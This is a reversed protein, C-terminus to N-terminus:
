CTGYRGTCISVIVTTMPLEVPRFPDSPGSRQAPRLSSYGRWHPSSGLPGVSVPHVLLRVLDLIGQLCFDSHPPLFKNSYGLSPGSWPFCKYLRAHRGPSSSEPWRRSSDLPLLHSPSSCLSFTSLPSGQPYGADGSPLPGLHGKRLHGSAIM